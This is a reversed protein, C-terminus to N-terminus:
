ANWNSGWMRVAYRNIAQLMLPEIVIEHLVIIGNESTLRMAYGEDNAYIGDGMYDKEIKERRDPM